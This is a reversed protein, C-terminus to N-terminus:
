WRSGWGGGWGGGWGWSRPQPRWGYGYGGWPRPQPRWGYGGGWGGGYGGGCGYGGCWTKEIMPANGAAVNRDLGPMAQAPSLVFSSGCAVVLVALSMKVIRSSM